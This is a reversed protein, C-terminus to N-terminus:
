RQSQLTSAKKGTLGVPTSMAEDVTWGKRLRWSLVHFPIGLRKAWGHVTDKDGNFEVGRMNLIKEKRKWIGRSTNCGACTAALNEIRNDKKDDNLHDIHLDGWSVQKSCWHCNFPGAGNASHYVLRHEYTWGDRRALPHDKAKVVVYGASNFHKESTPLLDTTGNRRVRGYHAECLQFGVRNAPKGCGEIKCVEFNESRQKLRRTYEEKRCEPSCQKYQRGRGPYKPIEKSCITCNNM